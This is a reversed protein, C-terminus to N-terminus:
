AKVTSWAERVRKDKIPLTAPNGARMKISQPASPLTREEEKRLCCESGRVGPGGMGMMRGLPLEEMEEDVEEKEM